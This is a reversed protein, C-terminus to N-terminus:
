GLFPQVGLMGYCSGTVAENEHSSMAGNIQVNLASRSFGCLDTFSTQRKRLADLTPMPIGYIANGNMPAISVLRAPDAVHMTRIALANYISLMAGAAGIALGLSGLVLLSGAGSRVLRRVVHGITLM